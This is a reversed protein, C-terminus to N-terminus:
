YSISYDLLLSDTLKYYCSSGSALAVNCYCYRGLIKFVQVLKCHVKCSATVLRKKKQSSNSPFVSLERKLAGVTLTSGYSLYGVPFHSRTIIPYKAISFNFLWHEGAANETWFATKVAAQLNSLKRLWM